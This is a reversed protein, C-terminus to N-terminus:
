RSNNRRWKKRINKQKYWGYNYLTDVSNKIEEKIENNERLVNNVSVLEDHSICLDILVNYIVVEITDSKTKGQFM